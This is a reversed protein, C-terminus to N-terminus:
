DLVSGAPPECEGAPHLSTMPLALISEERALEHLRVRGDDMLYIDVATDIREAQEPTKVLQLSFESQWEVQMDQLCRQCQVTALGQLEGKLGLRGSPAQVVEISVQVSAEGAPWDELKSLEVPGSLKLGPALRNHNIWSPLHDRM